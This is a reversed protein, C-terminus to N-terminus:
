TREKQFGEIFQQLLCCNMDDTKKHTKKLLSNEKIKDIQKRLINNDDNMEKVSNANTEKVSDNNMVKVSEEDDEIQDNFQTKKHNKKLLRNEKIKDIPKQLINNDDNMEKVSNANTEKVSDNNTVKVSEEDDNIEIIFEDPEEANNIVLIFENLEEDDNIVLIFEDKIQDNFQKNTFLYFSLDIISYCIFLFITFCFIDLFDM